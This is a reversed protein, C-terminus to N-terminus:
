RSRPSSLAAAFSDPSSRRSNPNSTQNPTQPPPTPNPTQPPPNPNPPTLPQGRLPWLIRFTGGIIAFLLPNVVFLARWGWHAVFGSLTLACVNGLEYSTSLIGMVLGHRAPAFWRSVVHVVGSWGGSQSFRNAAAFFILVPFATSAGFALSFAVSGTIATMMLRRGGLKDGTAGMLVKGVAYTSRPSPPFRQGLRTKDYGEILLLPLAAELNARCLYFSGYAFFLFCLVRVQPGRM